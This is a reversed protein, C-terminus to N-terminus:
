DASSASIFETARMLSTFSMWDHEFQTIEDDLECLETVSSRVNEPLRTLQRACAILLNAM